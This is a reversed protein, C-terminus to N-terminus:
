PAGEFGNRFIDGDDAEVAFNFVFDPNASVASWGGGFFTLQDGFSAGLDSTPLEGVSNAKWQGHTSGAVVIWYTTSPQFRFFSATEFTFTGPSTVPMAGLLLAQEVGDPEGANDGQITVFVDLPCEFCALDLMVAELAASVGIPMSFSVAQRQNNINTGFQASFSSNPPPLNGM